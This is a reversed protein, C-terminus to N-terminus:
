GDRDVALPRDEARSRAEEEISQIVEAFPGPDESDVLPATVMDFREVEDLTMWHMEGAPAAELTFWYFSEAIDIARYYDLYLQHQPDDRPVDAGTRGLGASWSHVGVYSGAGVTREVGALFLDVGGSAIMGGRALHTRLGLERVRKGLQVNIEDDLSGPVVTLVLTEVEPHEEIVAEFQDLTRSNIEYAMFLQRGVVQFETLDRRNLAVVEVLTCGLSGLLAVAMLSAALVRRLPSPSSM